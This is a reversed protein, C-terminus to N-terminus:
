WRYYRYPNDGMPFDTRYDACYWNLKQEGDPAPSLSMELGIRPGVSDHGSRDGDPGVPLGPKGAFGGPGFCNFLRVSIVNRGARVLHGPVTYNRSSQRWDDTDIGTHGVEQGNFYTNDFDALAGLALIMSKGAEEEPLDIERRFVAEGDFDNFFPVMRPLTVPAWGETSVVERLLARAQPTIGPDSHAAAMSAAPRLKLTPRMKWQGDLNLSWRDLPHFIRRDVPFSAGLNALLQAVARISRWRTYHFYTKEDAHFWDPNVQCFVAVGKGVSKRGLLGDAGVEVGGGLIWAPSDVYTRWRLDSASLGRSEPWDPVALSGTFHASALVFRAGLWGSAQTCPLFFAKGGKELYTDLETTDLVADPGVLLLETGDDLADARQFAVGTRALWAAGPDGGLYTVKNARRALPAHLAYDLIHEATLKAAPDLDVHDEVDLTCVILRGKGYNLEMLPSYALDFECELLPTWGSLHPKEIAASAVGGRNGWHWGAYPQDGENGRQYNGEYQPYAEILTSNGTWDRLDGDDLSLGAECNVVPFVRRSVKPCVRWGLTNTMRAPDQAFLLARGGASVLSELKAALAAHNKLGNRGIV